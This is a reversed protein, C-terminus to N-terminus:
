EEKSKNFNMNITGGNIVHGEKLHVGGESVLGYNNEIHNTQGSKKSSPSSPDQQKIEKLGNIILMSLFIGREGVITEDKEVININYHSKPNGSWVPVFRHTEKFELFQSRALSNFPSISDNPKFYSILYANEKLQEELVHIQEPESQVIRATCNIIKGHFSVLPRILEAEQTDTFIVVQMEEFDSVDARPAIFSNIRACDSEFDEWTAYECLNCLELLYNDNKTLTHENIIAKAISSWLNQLYKSTCVAHNTNNAKIKKTLAEFGRSNPEVKNLWCCLEILQKVKTPNYRAM